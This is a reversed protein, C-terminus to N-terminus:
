IASKLGHNLLWFHVAMGIEELELFKTLDHLKSEYILYVWEQQFTNKYLDYAMVSDGRIIFLDKLKCEGAIGLM